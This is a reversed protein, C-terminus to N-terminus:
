VRPKKQTLHGMITAEDSPFYKTANTLTLGPWLSYNGAGIVKIWTNSVQLGEAAHFYRGLIGLSALCAVNAVYLAYSRGLTAAKTLYKWAASPNWTLFVHILTMPAIHQWHLRNPMTPCVPFTQSGQNYTYECSNPDQPSVGVPSYTQSRNTAYM